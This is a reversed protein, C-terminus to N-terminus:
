VGSNLASSSSSSNMSELSRLVEEKVYAEIIDGAKIDNYNEIGIGCEYGSAVEKADDKFRKLSSLKGEYVIKSERILRLMSGRTVKGDQVFCGAITGVKPVTFTNRVEARGLVNEVITPALLGVLAKKLDDMLEYVISYTRIEIGNNKALQSSKTDPRVNFGIIIGKATSALLVDSETIGGVASHVIKLKVEHNGLKQTMGQLAELSGHVDTKLIINLEKVDGAKVKAFIEELTARKSATKQQEVIVQRLEVVRDLVSEDKVVDFRDGPSPVNELGLLEVPQGPGASDIREGRDNMLSRVRGKQIGAVIWQGVKVSGDKILLSAVPGRGKELKAEIVIGTASREPNAKLEAVEAILRIKELLEPLGQQTLASVQCYITDGGWEEPVIELETLQQMVKDPNAGPKDIKNVAVLIPVGAAKAHSIAEATQPMMGDDAAVVIIAIDTVNAGRARMATFAEHGPTDLFTIRYGDELEVQYAGIHQTIGGAEGQAVKAKRIADLLSTKGHDVHGMITVVPSRLVKDADLRGFAMEEILEEPSKLVNQVEWGFDPLILSLTEFDLATSPTSMMGNKMLIKTLEATKVGISTAVDGLRMSGEVKLVRKHAASQTIQTKQAPRTLLNTKKKPQFVLERKKFESADFEPPAEGDRAAGAGERAKERERRREERARAEAASEEPAASNFQPMSVFGARLNSKPRLGSAGVASGGGVGGSTGGPGSSRGQYGRNQYGGGSGHSQGMGQVRSLDMRGVINRRVQTAAASPQSAVGSQGILVEKKRVLPVGSGALSASAASSSSTQSEVSPSLASDSRSEIMSQTVGQEQKEQSSLSKLQIGSPDLSSTEVVPSTRVEFAKAQTEVVATVSNEESSNHSLIRSESTVLFSAETTDISGMSDVSETSEISGVSPTAGKASVSDVSSVLGRLNKSEKSEVQAVVGQNVSSSLAEEQSSIDSTVMTVGRSGLVESVDSSGSSFTLSSSSSAALSSSLGEKRIESSDHSESSDHDERRRRVVRTVGSIEEVKGVKGSPSEEGMKSRSSKVVVVTSSESAKKRAVTRKKPKARVDDAQSGQIGLGLKEKIQEVQDFTLEAMHSKVPLGWERIKDMLALPALGVEKAFEFVKPQSV